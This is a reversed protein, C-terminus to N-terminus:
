EYAKVIYGLVDVDPHFLELMQYKQHQVARVNPSKGLYKTKLENYNDVVYDGCGVHSRYPDPKRCNCYTNSVM